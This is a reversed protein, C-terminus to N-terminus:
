MRHELKALFAAIDDKLKLRRKKFRELVEDTTPQEESEIRYIKLNLEDYREALRKFQYNTKTLREILAAEDPFEERLDHAIRMITSREEHRTTASLRAKTQAAVV